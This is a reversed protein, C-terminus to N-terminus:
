SSDLYACQEPPTDPARKCLARNDSAAQISLGIGKVRRMLSRSFYLLATLMCFVTKLYQRAREDAECSLPREHEDIQKTLLGLAGCLWAELQRAKLYTKHDNAREIELLHRAFAVAMFGLVQWYTALQELPSSARRRIMFYLIPNYDKIALDVMFSKQLHSNQAFGRREPM